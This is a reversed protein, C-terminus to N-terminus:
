DDDLREHDSDEARQRAEEESEQERLSELRDEGRGSEVQRARRRDELGPRDDHAEQDPREDRQEGAQTGSEACRSHRRDGRDAFTGLKRGAAECAEGGDKRRRREREAHEQEPVAHERM